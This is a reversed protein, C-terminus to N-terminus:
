HFNPCHALSVPCKGILDYFSIDQPLILDEKQTETIRTLAFIFNLAASCRALFVCLRPSVVYILADSSVNRMEQFERALDSRVLELFQGITDGKKCQM